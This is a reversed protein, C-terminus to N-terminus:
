LVAGSTGMRFWKLGTLLKGGQKELICELLIVKEDIDLDELHDEM